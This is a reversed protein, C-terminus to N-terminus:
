IKTKFDDFRDLYTIERLSSLKLTNKRSAATYNWVFTASLGLISDWMTKSFTVAKKGCAITKKKDLLNQKKQTLCTRKSSYSQKVYSTTNDSPDLSSM